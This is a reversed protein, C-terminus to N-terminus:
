NNLTNTLQCLSLVPFSLNKFNSTKADSWGNCLSKYTIFPPFLIVKKAKVTRLYM